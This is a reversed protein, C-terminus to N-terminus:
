AEKEEQIWSITQLLGKELSIKPKWGLIEKAKSIDPWRRLPDDEPLPRYTLSSKSGTLSIVKQALDLVTVENVNGINIVEGRAADLAALRLLGEIQDTVYTFSRTQLGKGFVTLPEEKLAQDIFRPIVRGYIGDTRIRPGYTNFIRAIRTDLNHQRRFAVVYAEGCRKAEDYCGRPGLPNVNGYYSEPTPFINPNGYIESTSTYLIRAGHKKAIGLAVLLGMTNSKLIQIPHHEFEFPSARSAMHFVYDLPSDYPIPVSIDHQIFRFHDNGVLHEINSLKGSTLNDICTVDAKCRILTDCMWSGLFGAGGTILVRKDEFSIEKLDRQIQKLDKSIDFMM